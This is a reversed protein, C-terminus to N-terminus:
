GSRRWHHSAVTSHPLLRARPAHTLPFPPGGELAPRVVTLLDLLFAREASSVQHLTYLFLQWDDYKTPVDEADVTDPVLRQFSLLLIMMNPHYQRTFVVCNGIAMLCGRLALASLSQVQVNAAVASALACGCLRLRAEMVVRWVVIANWFVEVPFAVCAIPVGAISDGGDVLWSLALKLVANTLVIKAKYLLGLLALNLKSVRAFPDVGLVRVEPDDLELAARALLREVQFVGSTLVSERLSVISAVRHVTCAHSSLSGGVSESTGAHLCICFLLLIEVALSVGTVAGVLPLRQWWPWGTTSLDVTVMPFVFVLSVVSGLTLALVLVLTVRLSLEADSLGGFLAGETALRARDAVPPATRLRLWRLVVLGFRELSGPEM